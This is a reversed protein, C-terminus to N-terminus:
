ADGADRLKGVASTPVPVQEAAAHENAARRQDDGARVPTPALTPYEEYARVQNRGGRKARYLARDAHSMMRTLDYGSMHTTTVGFSATIRFSHGSEATDIGAIWVRCDGAMRLAARLNHGSLLVAFEEGGLRGFSDVQRCIPRCAEVVRQLTWDGVAHGFRDNIAKFHDLDFMLLAAEEGARACQALIAESQQSFHHRNSVGTLADTEAMRRLSTQLRKTRIAWLAVFAVVLFLLAMGLRTNETSQQQVRQQLQLLANQQNLMSIQQTQQLSQHRVVQYAM